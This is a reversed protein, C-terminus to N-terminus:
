SLVLERDHAIRRRSLALGIIVILASAFQAATLGLVRQDNVRVFDLAFRAVGMTLLLAAVVSGDPSARRLARGAWVAFMALVVAEYIAPLHVVDGVSLPEITDGGGFRFGIPPTAAAGLHEGVAACGLRGIAMGAALALALLDAVARRPMAPNDRFWMGLVVIAAVFGGFFQLGGDWVAIVKWPRGIMAQWESLVYAVRSGVLGGVVMQLGLSALVGDDLGRRRATRGLLALAVAIGLALFLGFTHLSLPGLEITQLTRYPIM